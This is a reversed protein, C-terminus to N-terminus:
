CTAIKRVVHKISYVSRGLEKAIEEYTHCKSIMRKVKAIEQETYRKRSNITKYNMRASRLWGPEPALSGVEYRSWNILNKHNEAWKWFKVPDISYRSSHKIKDVPLDYKDIWRKVVAYDVNFCRAVVKAGISDLYHNLGLRAARHKVSSVSRNLRKATLATSQSLYKKLLYNDEQETWSRRPYTKQKKM